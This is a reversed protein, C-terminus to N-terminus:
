LAPMDSKEAREIIIKNVFAGMRIRAKAYVVPAEPTIEFTLDQCKRTMGCTCHLTYSGCALPIVVSQQNALHGYPQSNLYIGYGLAIGIPSGMRYLQLYGQGPASLPAGCKPCPANATLDAVNGCGPCKVRFAAM